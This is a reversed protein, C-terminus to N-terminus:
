SAIEDDELVMSLSVGTEEYTFGIAYSSLTGGTGFATVHTLDGVARSLAETPVFPDIDSLIPGGSDGPSSPLQTHFAGPSSAFLHGLSVGTRADLEADGFGVGQGYTTVQEGISVESRQEAPGGWVPVRPDLYDEAHSPVELFAYDEGVETGDAAQRAYLVEGVEVYRGISDSAQSGFCLSVCVKVTPQEFDPHTSNAMGDPLVCHGATGIYYTESAENEYLFNMTCLSAGADPLDIIIQRGPRITPEITPPYALPQNGEELTPADDFVAQPVDEVLPRPEAGLIPAPMPAQVEPAQQTDDTTPAALTGLAPSAFVTVTTLAVLFTVLRTRGLASPPAGM